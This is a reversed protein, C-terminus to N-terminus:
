DGCPLPREATKGFGSDSFDEPPESAASPPSGFIGLFANKAREKDM